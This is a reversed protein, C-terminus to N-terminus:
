QKGAINDIVTMWGELVVSETGSLTVQASHKYRKASTTQTDTPILFVAFVGNPGDTISVESPDANTKAILPSASGPFWANWVITAGTIDRITDNDNKVTVVLTAHEGTRVDFDQSTLAAM